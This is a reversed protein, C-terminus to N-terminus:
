PKLALIRQIELELLRPDAPSRGKNTKPLTPIWKRLEELLIAPMYPRSIVGLIPQREALPPPTAPQQAALIIKTNKLWDMNEIQNIFEQVSIFPLLTDLILYDPHSSKLRHLADAASKALLIQCTGMQHLTTGALLLQPLEHDVVMITIGPPSQLSSNHSIIRRIQSLFEPMAPPKLFYDSAGLKMVREISEKNSVMMMTSLASAYKQTNLQQLLHFGSEQPLEDDLILLSFPTSTMRQFVSETNTFTEVRFTERELIQKIVNAVNPNTLCLAVPEERHSIPAADSIIQNRASHSDAESFAMYLHSEARLAADEIATNSDHITIGICVVIPILQGTSNKITLHSLEPLLKEVAKTAGFHDEGTLLIAFKSVDWRAVVDTARLESSLIVGMARLLEDCATPPCHNSLAAFHPIGVLVFAMPDNKQISRQLQKFIEHCAARNPLGTTLDRRSQLGKMYNRKLRLTLYNAIDELVASKSFVGDAGPVSFASPHNYRTGTISPTIAIIPLAATEPHNRLENIFARGDLDALVVDVICFAVPASSLLEDAKRRSEAILAQHNQAKLSEVLLSSYIKDSSVILVLGTNDPTRELAHQIESILEQLKDPFAASTAQEANRASQLLDDMGRFESSARLLAVLRRAENESEDHTHTEMRALLQTLSSLRYTLNVPSTISNIM